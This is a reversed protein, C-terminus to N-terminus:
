VKSYSVLGESNISVQFSVISNTVVFSGYTSPRISNIIFDIESGSNNMNIQNIQNGIKLDVDYNSESTSFTSGTFLNYRDSYLKMGYTKGADGSKARVQVSRIASVLLKADAEVNVNQTNIILFPTLFAAIVTIIGIVILVEIM